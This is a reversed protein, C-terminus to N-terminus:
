NQRNQATDVGVSPQESLGSFAANALFNDDIFAAFLEAKRVAGRENVHITDYWYEQDMPMQNAFDFVPVDLLEGARRVVFNNELVGAELIPDNFDGFHAWTSFMIKAGSDHALLAMQRLNTEFYAPPNRKLDEISMLMTNPLFGYGVRRMPIVGMRVGVCYALRSHHWWRHPSDRDQISWDVRYGSNDRRYKGPPVLRAAVDNIGHYVVILDPDLPLVRLQLNLLSDLSSFAAVGTNIVEVDRHGYKERLVRELQAPYSDVHNDVSTTYTTSGGICFIRCVGEPKDAEIEKGRFGFSNHRDRGDESRFEPNPVHSFYPHTAYRLFENPIEDWSRSYEVIWRRSAISWAYGRLGVEAIVLAVVLSAFSLLLEKKPLKNLM